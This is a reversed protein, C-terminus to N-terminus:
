VNEKHVYNWNEEQCLKEFVEQRFKMMSRKEVKKVRKVRQRTTREVWVLQHDSSSLEEQGTRAVKQPTNTWIHDLLSESIVGDRNTQHTKSKILQAWGSTQVEDSFNKLMKSGRYKSDGQRSWDLNLDGIMYAEERGTWVQRRAELWNKLREEQSKSSNEKTKWPTHERYIMGVFTRRTGKHGLKIWIEPMLDGEMNNKVVEYSLKEKIYIVVMSNQKTM